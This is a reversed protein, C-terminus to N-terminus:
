ENRKIMHNIKDASKVVFRSKYEDVLNGLYENKSQLKDNRKSLRENQKIVKKNEKVLKRNEEKLNRNKETLDMKVNRLEYIEDYFDYLREFKDYLDNEILIKNRANIIRIKNHETYFEFRRPLVISKFTNSVRIEWKDIPHSLIDSHPISFEIDFENGNQNSIVPYHMKEFTAVNRLYASDIEELSTGTFNLVGDDFSVDNIKIENDNTPRSDICFLRNTEIGIEVDFGDYNIIQRQSNQLYADKNFEDCIYEMKIRLHGKDEILGVPITIVNDKINLDYKDSESDILYANTEHPHNPNMYNISESFQIYINNEDNEITEIKKVVLEENIADDSFDICEVYEEGLNDPIHPNEMLEKNLGSIYNLGEVDRNEVM